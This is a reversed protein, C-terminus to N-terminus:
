LINNNRMQGGSQGCNTKFYNNQVHMIALHMGRQQFWSHIVSVSHKGQMM